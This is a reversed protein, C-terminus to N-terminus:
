NPSIDNRISPYLSYRFDQTASQEMPHETVGILWGKSDEIIGDSILTMEEMRSQWEQLSSEIMTAMDDAAPGDAVVNAVCIEEAVRAAQLFMISATQSIEYVDEVEGIFREMDGIDIQIDSVELVSIGDELRRDTSITLHTTNRVGNAPADEMFRFQMQITLEMVAYERETEVTQAKRFAAQVVKLWEEEQDQASALALPLTILLLILLFLTRRPM